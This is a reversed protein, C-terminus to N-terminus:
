MSLRKLFVSMIIIIIIILPCISIFLRVSGVSYFCFDTGLVVRVSLEFKLLDCPVHM